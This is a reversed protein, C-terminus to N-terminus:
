PIAEAVFEFELRVEDEVTDVAPADSITLDFDTYLFATTAQGELRTESVPTVTVAFTVVETVGAVM